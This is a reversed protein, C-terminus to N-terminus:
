HLRLLQQIPRTIWPKTMYKVEKQSQKKVPAHKNVISHFTDLFCSMYSSVGDHGSNLLLNMKFKMEEQFDSSNFNTM